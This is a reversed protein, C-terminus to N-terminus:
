LNCADHGMELRLVTRAAAAATSIRRFNAAGAISIYSAPRCVASPPPYFARGNFRWGRDVVLAGRRDVSNIARETQWCFAALVVDEWGMHLEMMGVAIAGKEVM